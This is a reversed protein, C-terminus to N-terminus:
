VIDKINYNRWILGRLVVTRGEVRQGLTNKGDQCSTVMRIVREM